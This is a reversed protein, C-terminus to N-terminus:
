KMGSLFYRRVLRHRVVEGEASRNDFSILPRYYAHKVIDWKGGGRGGSVRSTTGAVAQRRDATPSSPGDDAGPQERGVVNNHHEHSNKVVQRGPAASGGDEALVLCQFLTTRISTWRRRRQGPM